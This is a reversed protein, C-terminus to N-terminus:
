EENKVKRYPIGKGVYYNWEEQTFNREVNGHLKRAIEPLSILYETITGNHEGTWIYDKDTSFIFCTLWSSSQFLTIPKIQTQGTIWLLLNGDYSSSYLRKGDFELKTVQSLHGVLKHRNSGDFLWITGDNMGYAALNEDATCTFATVQGSLGTPEDSVEDLSSVLHMGGINDFVLPRGGRRGCCIARFPLYRTGIIRESAVDFLALSNEGIILIRGEDMGQLCFPKDVNEITLVRVSNGDVVVLHGTHSIVYGKGNQGAYIDRFCYQRDSMLRETAIQGGQRWHVFIEGQTSVSLLRGSGPLTAICSISGDHISWGRRCGASQTLAQFVSPTYLDGGYDSTYLYSAYALMNGIETDGAQYISYSQSGLTRGLSIYNLTDAVQKAYEAQRRQEDAEMRQREAMQYASMAESASREAVGQARIANQREAESLLTMERAIESQRIAERSREESLAQQGYAIEEMQKSVRRDIASRQEQQRLESLESELESIRNLNGHHQFLGAIVAALLMVGLIGIIIHEKKM